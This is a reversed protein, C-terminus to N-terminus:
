PTQVAHGPWFRRRRWPYRPLSVPRGGAYLRSWNPDCGATYAAGLGALLSELDPRKRYLSGVATATGGSAAITERVPNLLLPHASIEVFLASGGGALASRVAAGFRVPLRLNEMWYAAGLETGDVPRDWATSHILVRARRPRVGDLAAILDARMPEVQPAHSAYSVRVRRCFVERARLPEIVKALADPDGSLVTSTESNLVGTCVRDAYEGIAEQAAREGLGV